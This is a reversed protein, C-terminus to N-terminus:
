MCERGKLIPFVLVQDQHRSDYIPPRVPFGPRRDETDPDLSIAESDQSRKSTLDVRALQWNLHKSFVDSSEVVVPLDVGSRTPVLSVNAIM